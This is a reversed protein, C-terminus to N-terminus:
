AHGQRDIEKARQIALDLMLKIIKEKQFPALIDPVDQEEAEDNAATKCHNILAALFAAAVELRWRITLEHKPILQKREIQSSAAVIRVAADYQNGTLPMTLLEKIKTTPQAPSIGTM